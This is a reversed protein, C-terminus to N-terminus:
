SPSIRREKNTLMQIDKPPWIRCLVRGRILAQPVPGYTRSDSSNQRNDGELWVHGQPVVESIFGHYIKDGTIGTVRKCIYQHPNVPSKAIVIDGRDIKQLRPSIHESLIVDDTWITPEMSPGTCVVFDGVYELACHTICGFQVMGVVIGGCKAVFRKFNSSILM